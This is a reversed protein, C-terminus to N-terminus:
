KKFVLWNALKKGISSHLNNEQIEREKQIMVCKIKIESACNKIHKPSRITKRSKKSQERGKEHGGDRKQEKSYAKRRRYVLFNESFNM